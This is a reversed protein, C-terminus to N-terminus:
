ENRVPQDTILTGDAHYVKDTNGIVFRFMGNAISKLIPQALPSQKFYEYDTQSSAKKFVKKNIREGNPSIHFQHIETRIGRDTISVEKFVMVTRLDVTEDLYEVEIGGDTFTITHKKGNIIIEQM